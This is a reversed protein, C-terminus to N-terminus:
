VDDARRATTSWRTQAPPSFVATSRAKSRPNFSNIGTGNSFLRSRARNRPSTCSRWRSASSICRWCSNVSAMWDASALERAFDSNRAAILWSIRVGIFPTIAM